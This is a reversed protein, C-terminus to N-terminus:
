SVRLLRSLEATFNELMSNEHKKNDYSKCSVQGTKMIELIQMGEQDLKLVATTIPDFALGGTNEKRLKLMRIRSNLCEDSALEREKVRLEGDRWRHAGWDFKWNAWGARPELDDNERVVCSTDPHEQMISRLYLEVKM